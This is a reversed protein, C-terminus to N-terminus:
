DQVQFFALLQLFTPALAGAPGEAAITVDGDAEEPKAPPSPSPKCLPLDPERACLSSTAQALERSALAGSSLSLVGLLSLAMSKSLAM